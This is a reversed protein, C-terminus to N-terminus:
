KKVFRKTVVGKETEIKAFYVGASLSTADITAVNGNVEVSTLLKGYVDYVAVSYVAFQSSHVTIIGTTPNPYLTTSNDLIYDNIGTTTFTIIPTADSNSGTTCHALIQAQYATNAALDSITYPNTTVTINTWTGDEVKKYNIEWENATGAAQDWALVVSNANIDTFHFNTPTPCDTEAQTTFNATAWDSTEGAGCNAQVRVNYATGPTLGTLNYTPTNNVTINNSWNTASAAKYQLNWATESGGATWNIAASTQAVNSASLATPADCTSVPGGQVCNIELDFGDNQVSGDSHFHITLPGTTSTTAPVSGQTTGSTSHLMTGSASAGDYIEIYDYSSELHFTGSIQVVDGANEPNITLYSECYSSYVDNPGGDDYIHGGCATITQSGTVTMNISGPATTIPGVWFSQDGGGCDSQVYFDYVTSNSLGTISAPVSTVVVSTGTTNPDFGTTGYIVNWTNASGMETWSLDVSTATTGVVTLNTPAPCTALTTFNIPASAPSYEGNDCDSMIRVMYNTYPTLNTLQYPMTAYPVDTWTVDSSEKYQLVWNTATGNETWNIDVSNATISSAVVGTPSPCTINAIYINDIAGPPMTGVSGDNRWVFYIRRVGPTTFGDITTTFTTFSSQLNLNSTTLQTAGAPATLTSGPSPLAPNGIYVQIYDCCSEGYNRWDFSFQYGYASAPFYIDRFAWVTSTSSADYSNTAGNDNSIYMAHTGGNNAATGVVWQNACSGNAMSWSHDVQEFDCEYPLQAPIQSTMFEITMWNSYEGGCDARVYATYQTSPQLNYETYSTSYAYASTCTDLDVNPTTPIIIVEWEQEEGGANWTLTVEASDIGTASLNTIHQCSPITFVNVDDIYAYNYMGVPLRFAVFHGNGVYNRTVVEQSEWTYDMTPYITELTTFTSGDTPDDMIGVELYYSTSTFHSSFGIVLSDMEIQEDFRPLAAIAYYSSGGNYFYLSNSGSLSYSNSIYPYDTTASTYTCLRSWCDPIGSTPYTDFNEMFPLVDVSVCETTFTQGVYDSYEGGCDSRLRFVYTTSPLLNDLTYNPSTLTGVSIWTSDSAERYELEWASEQYGPVWVLDVSNSTINELYVAPAVCSILSDCSGGFIVNNLESSSTGSYSTINMPNYQAGDEYVYRSCGSAGNHVYYTNSSSWSGTRDSVAVMLNDTGNYDFITDFDFQNWGIAINVNGSFVRVASTMPLWNSLTSQSTHMLYIDLTRNPTPNSTCYFSISHLQNAGNFDSSPYIQQTFSYNYTSYQPFYSSTSTGTGIEIDGGALCNTLFSTTLTDSVGNDCVVYLRVEYMTLPSLGALIISTNTTTEATWSEMGLESYEVTYVDSADSLESANWTLRASSGTTNDVMFNGPTGCGSIEKVEVDDLYTYSTYDGPARFAIYRGNGAYNNLYAIFDYWTNTSPYDLGSLSKVVTFTNVDMPDTMVGVEIHGYESSTKQAKFNVQLTNMSISEDMPPLIAYAYAGSYSYFYLSGTGSAATSGIIYPYSSSTTVKSWCDPFATTGTGNADFNETYPLVDIPLCTTHFSTQLWSSNEGSCDARMYLTYETNATLGSFEYFTDPVFIPSENAFSSGEPVLVVEYGSENGRSWWSAIAEDYTVNSVAFHSPMPCLVPEGEMFRINNRYTAVSGGSVGGAPNYPSGDNQAYLAKSTADHCAFTPNSSTVYSGTNNLVAVVVNSTGDWEFPVDLPINVWNGPNANTFDVTGDFVQYMESVPIWDNNNAFSNKSVNGMYVVINKTQPTPYIYQFSICPIRGVIGNLEAATYIQQSYSYNYYTNIPIQYTSSNGNGVITSDLCDICPNDAMTVTTSIPDSVCGNAYVATVEYNYTGNAVSDLFSTGSLPTANLLTNDRSVNYGSLVTNADVFTGIILWNYDDPSELATTLTEWENGLVILEGKNVATPNASAGLPYGATTNCRIGIWLEQTVDVTLPTTLNVTNIAEVVLPTTIQQELLLTGPDFTTTTADYSGGQWVEIYYTCVSQSEGPVFSVSQLVTNAIGTMDSPEFRIVGMFDLAANGGIRTSYTRTCWMLDQATSNVVPNWNLQVNNWGPAHLQATLNTPATCNNQAFLTLPIFMVLALLTLLYKKM